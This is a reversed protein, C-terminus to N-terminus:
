VYTGTAMPASETNLRMQRRFVSRIITSIQEVDASTLGTKELLEATLISIHSIYTVLRSAVSIYNYVYHTINLSDFKISIVGQM